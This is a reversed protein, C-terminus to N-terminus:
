RVRRNERTKEKSTIMGGKGPLGKGVEVRRVRVGLPAVRNNTAGDNGGGASIRGIGMM